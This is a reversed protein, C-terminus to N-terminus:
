LEMKAYRNYRDAERKAEQAKKRLRTVETMRSEPQRKCRIDSELRSAQAEYRRYDNMYRFAIDMYRKASEPSEIKVADPDLRRNNLRQELLEDARERSIEGSACAERGSKPLESIDRLESRSFVESVERM